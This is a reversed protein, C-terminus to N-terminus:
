RWRILRIRGARIMTSAAVHAIPQIASPGSSDRAGPRWIEAAATNADFRTRICSLPYKAGDASTLGNNCKRDNDISFSNYRMYGIVNTSARFALNFATATMATIQMADNATVTDPPPLLSVVRNKEGIARDQSNANPAKNAAASIPLGRKISAMSPVVKRRWHGQGNAMSTPSRAAPRPNPAIKADIM